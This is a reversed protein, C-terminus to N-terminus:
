KCAEQLFHLWERTRDSWTATRLLTERAREAHDLFRPYSHLVEEITRALEEEKGSYFILWPAYPSNALAQTKEIIAPRFSCLYLPIKLPIAMEFYPTSGFPNVWLDIGQVWQTFHAYRILPALEIDNRFSAPLEERLNGVGVGGLRLRLPLGKEKLRYFAQLLIGLDADWFSGVYGLTFVGSPKPPTLSRVLEPNVGPYFVFCRSSPFHWRSSIAEKLEPSVTWAFRAHRIAWGQEFAKWRPHPHPTIRGQSKARQSHEPELDHIMAVTSFGLANLWSFLWYGPNEHYPIGVKLWGLATPAKSYFLITESSRRYRLSLLKSLLLPPLILNHLPKPPHWRLPLFHIQPSLPPYSSPDEGLFVWVEEGLNALSTILEYPRIEEGGQIEELNKWRPLFFCHIM